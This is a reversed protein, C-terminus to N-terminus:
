RTGINGGIDEIINTMQAEIDTVVEEMPGIVLPGTTSASPDVDFVIEPHLDILEPKMKVFLDYLAPNIKITIPGTRELKRMAEKVIRVIVDPKITLEEIVIRRAITIALDFVQPELEKIVSSKLANMARIITELRDLLLAAKQEGMAFGAKEGSAFGKEYAEREIAEVKQESFQTGGKKSTNTKELSPMGYLVTDGGEGKIVRGKYM